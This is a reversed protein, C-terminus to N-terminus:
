GENIGSRAWERVSLPMGQFADVSRAVERQMVGLAYLKYENQIKSGRDLPRLLELAVLTEWSKMVVARDYCL